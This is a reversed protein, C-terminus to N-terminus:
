TDTKKAEAPPWLWDDAEVQGDQRVGVSKGEGRPGDVFRRQAWGGLCESDRWVMETQAVPEM